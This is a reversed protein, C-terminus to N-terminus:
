SQHPRMGGRVAGSRTDGFNEAFSADLPRSNPVSLWVRVLHRRREPDPWDIFETRRHLTTWNNLFLMDGRELEFRHQLKRDEATDELYDIAERQLDTLPPVEGSADARDILVRLFSAAFFGECFSFIPQNCYATTNGQDVNHRQYPYPKLLEALLDPREGAIRNYLAASSVLHNEGGEKAQQICLFGIVDCRDTHFSLRKSTNPGRTRPDQKGFGADRVDFLRDGKANQSVPTGIQHALSWFVAAAATTTCDTLPFGRVWTAGSGQELRDQIRQLCDSLPQLIDTLDLTHERNPPKEEAVCAQAKSIADVQDPDLQVLWDDRRTLEEGLWLSSDRIEFPYSDSSSNPVASADGNAKAGSEQM